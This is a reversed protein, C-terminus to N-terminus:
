AAREKRQNLIIAAGVVIAACLIHIWTLPEHLIVGGAVISIVTSINTFVSAKAAPLIRFTDTITLSPLLICGVGLYFASFLFGPDSLPAFFLGATGAKIHDALLLVSFFLSGAIIQWGTIVTPTFRGRHLRTLISYLANLLTSVALYFAGGPTMERDGEGAALMIIVAAAGALVAAFMVGNLREHLMPVAFVAILIPSAAFFIAGIVTSCTLLGILQFHLFLVYSASISLLSLVDKKDVRLSEKRVLLLVPLFVLAFLFRYALVDYLGGGVLAAKNAIFAFGVIVAFATGSLIAKRENREQM